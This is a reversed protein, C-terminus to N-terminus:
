SAIELEEKGLQPMSAACKRNAEPSGSLARRTIRKQSDETAQASRRM